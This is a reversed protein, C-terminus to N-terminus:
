PKVWPKDMTALQYRDRWQDREREVKECERKWYHANDVARELLDTQAFLFGFPNKM